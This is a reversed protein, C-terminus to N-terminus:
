LIGKLNDVQVELMDRCMWTGHCAPSPPRDMSRPGGLRQRSLGALSHGPAAPRRGARLEGLHDESNVTVASIKRRHDVQSKHGSEGGSDWQHVEAPSYYVQSPGSRVDPQGRAGHNRGSQWGARLSLPGRQELIRTV